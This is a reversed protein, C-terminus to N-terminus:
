SSKQNKEAKLISLVQLAHSCNLAAQGFKMAEDAKEASSAKKILEGVKEENKTMPELEM